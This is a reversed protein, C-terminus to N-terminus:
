PLIFWYRCFCYSINESRMSIYYDQWTLLAKHFYRLRTATSRDSSFSFYYEKNLIVSVDFYWRAIPENRTQAVKRMIPSIYYMKATLVHLGESIAHPLIFCQNEIHNTTQRVLVRKHYIIEPMCAPFTINYHVRICFLKSSLILHNLRYEYDVTILVIYHDPFYQSSIYIPYLGKTLSLSYPFPETGSRYTM